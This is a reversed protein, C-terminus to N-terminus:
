PRNHPSLLRDIDPNGTPVEVTSRDAGAEILTRVIELHNPKPENMASWVACSLATGLYTNVSELDAHRSILLRVAELQGRNAAWHIANMGTLNGDEPRVGHHLLYEAVQCRGNFCACSLAENLEAQHDDFRGQKHWEIISPGDFVSDLLSFDGKRLHKLVADFSM